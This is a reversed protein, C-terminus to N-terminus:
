KYYEINKGLKHKKDGYKSFFFINYVELFKIKFEKENNTLETEKSNMGFSYPFMSFGGNILYNESVVLDNNGFNILSKHDITIAINKMKLKINYYKKSDLNFLFSVKDEKNVISSGGSSDTPLPIFNESTYGGFRNGKETEILVLLHNLNTKEFFNKSSDGNNRSSYILKLGVKGLLKEFFNFETLNKIIDSCNLYMCNDILEEGEKDKKRNKDIYVFGFFVIQSIIVIITGLIIPKTTQYKKLEIIDNKIHKDGEEPSILEEAM